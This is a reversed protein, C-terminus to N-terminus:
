FIERALKDADKETMFRGKVIREFQKRKEEFEDDTMKPEVTLNVEEVEVNTAIPSEPTPMPKPAVANKQTPKRKAM